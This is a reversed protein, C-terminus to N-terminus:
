TGRRRPCRRRNGTSSGRYRHHSGRAIRSRLREVLHGCFFESEMNSPVVREHLTIPGEDMNTKITIYAM